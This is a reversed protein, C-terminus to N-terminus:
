GRRYREDANYGTGGARRSCVPYAPFVFGHDWYINSDCTFVTKYFLGDAGYDLIRIGALPSSVTKAQLASVGYMM